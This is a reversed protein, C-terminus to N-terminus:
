PLPQHSIKEVEDASIKFHGAVYILGGVLSSLTILGLWIIAFALAHARDVGIFTLFYTYAWERIGIGNFSPTVFGLVAVAPYFVFYYWLPINTLGLALGIAIHCGVLVMQILLSWVLCVFMLNKDTWYVRAASENFQRTIWNREGLFMRSLLPVFPMLGFTFITGAFIPWKLQWPLGNGGPGLLIGATAMLFLVAIGTTRDAMVSYFANVYKGTGKSIYYCRSFDGGVTSPLFLNFFLGVYCYQALELLGKKLGVASALLQWRHASVFVHLLFVLVAAGLYRRDAGLAAGWIEKLDVKGFVFLSAFLFISIAIKVRLKTRESIHMTAPPKEDASDVAYPCAADDPQAQPGRSLVSQRGREKETIGKGAVM